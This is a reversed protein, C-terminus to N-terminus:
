RGGYERKPREKLVLPEAETFLSPRANLQELYKRWGIKEARGQVKRRWVHVERVAKPERLKLKRTDKM